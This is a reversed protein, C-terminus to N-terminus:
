TNKEKLKAEIARAFFSRQEFPLSGNVMAQKECDKIEEDTLEQWQRPAMDHSTQDMMVSSALAECTPCPPPATYLAAWREPHRDIDAPRHTIVNGEILNHMWAVPEQEMEKQYDPHPMEDWVKGLTQELLTGRAPVKDALGQAEKIAARLATISETTNRKAQELASEPWVWDGHNAWGELTQLAQKMADLSM